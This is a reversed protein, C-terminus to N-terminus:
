PQPARLMELCELLARGNHYGAKWIHAKDGSQKGDPDVTAWWEGNKWDIQHWDVFEWTKAFVKWYLPDGTAKWMRLASVLAEAQVWWSKQRDTAPANFPGLYYFGGQTEDYGYKLSYAWLGRYLDLYPRDPLGAAANADMLLWVNELDHGYSVRAYEGELRPTWDRTYKDTCAVLGKRVVTNSEISILEILRDRAVPLRSAQYFTTMAEMLHLHTNMLKLSADGMYGVEGPTPPSWDEHFHERYGGHQPDHAKAELLRFFQTTFDLVDKRGSALAYESLAYLAFSQGYLHKHPKLRQKGTADVEWYFGGNTADWMRERLFNYGHGAAELSRARDHGARALRSFLWVMRAQTVIGKTGPKARGEPDFNMHYGGHTRDLCRPLWFAILNDRLAQEMRTAIAQRTPEQALAPVALCLLLASALLRM